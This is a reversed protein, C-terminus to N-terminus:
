KLTRPRYKSPTLELSEGDSVVGPLGLDPNEIDNRLGLWCLSIATGRFAEEDTTRQGYTLWLIAHHSSHIAHHSGDPAKRVIIFLTRADRQESRVVSLTGARTVVVGKAIRNGREM